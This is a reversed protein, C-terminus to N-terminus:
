LYSCYPVPVKQNVLSADQARDLLVWLKFREIDAPIRLASRDDDTSKRGFSGFLGKPAQQDLLSPLIPRVNAKPGGHGDFL